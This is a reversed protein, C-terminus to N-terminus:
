QPNISEVLYAPADIAMGNNTILVLTEGSVTYSINGRLNTHVPTGDIKISISEANPIYLTKKEGDPKILYYASKLSGLSITTDGDIVFPRKPSGDAVNYQLNIIRMYNAKTFNVRINNEIIEYGKPMDTIKITYEGYYLTAKAKGESDTTVTAVTRSGECIEVTVDPAPRDLDDRVAITFEGESEEAEIRQTCSFLSLSLIILTLILCATRKM